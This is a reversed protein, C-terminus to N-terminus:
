CPVGSAILHHWGSVGPLRPSSTSRRSVHWPGTPAGPPCRGYTNNSPITTHAAPVNGLCSPQGEEEEEVEQHTAIECRHSDLDLGVALSAPCPQWNIPGCYSSSVPLASTLYTLPGLTHGGSVAGTEVQVLWLRNLCALM